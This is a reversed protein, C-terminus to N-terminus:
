AEKANMSRSGARSFRPSMRCADAVLPDHRCHGALQLRAAVAVDLLSASRSTFKAIIVSSIWSMRVTGEAM